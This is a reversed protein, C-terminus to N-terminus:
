SRIRSLAIATAGQPIATHLRKPRRSSAFRASPSIKPYRGVSSNGRFRRVITGSTANADSIGGAVPASGWADAVVSM